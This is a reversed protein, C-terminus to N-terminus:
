KKATKATKQTKSPLRVTASGPLTIEGRQNEGWCEIDVLYEGNVVYKKTVKGKMWHTDGVINFRKLTGNLNKIFGDDGMWNTIVNDLWSIRQCGYDYAGPIGITQARSDEMHVLEPVDALGTRSDIMDAGQHRKLFGMAVGHAKIFPSGAGILWAYIDRRSLPGKIVPQLADGVNVDEWYRPEAGRIIEDDYAKYIADLQEKNYEAPKIDSYKGHDEAQKRAARVCWDHAKAVLAGTQNYYKIDHYQIVTKGAMQSEKVQVDVLENTYTFTDGELIPLYFEWQDGSHWAHVGPMGRGQAAWYISYLFTPPAALRGIKSKKAYDPDTYLPNMDGIGDCYHAITDRNASTNFYPRRPKWVINMRKKLEDIM